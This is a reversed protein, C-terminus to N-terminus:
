VHRAAGKLCAPLAVPSGRDLGHMVVGLVNYLARVPGLVAHAASPEVATTYTSAVVGDVVIEGHLTQPNFLGTSRVAEVAVVASVDGSGLALVDGVAVAGASVLGRGAVPLYHGETAAVAHGSATRLQVFDRVGGAERHTFMFVPSHAGPGVQVRDGVALADLRVAAGSELVVTAGAPFCSSSSSSSAKTTSGAEAAATTGGASPAATTAATGSAAAKTSCKQAKSAASEGADGPHSLGTSRFDTVASNTSTWLCCPDGLEEGNTV